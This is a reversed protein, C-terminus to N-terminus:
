IFADKEQMDKICNNWGNRRKENEKPTKVKKRKRKKKSVDGIGLAFM